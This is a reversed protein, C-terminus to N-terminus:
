ALRLSGQFRGGLLIQGDAQVAVSRVTNNVDLNFGVDLTGNAAVRAIRSRTTGAVTTFQGGLLIQGDAQVAVSLVDSNVNPNFSADLTGNANLRAINSRAQGLVSSFRGAIITKGDPQVATSLVFGGVISLDLPDLDGPAAHASPLSIAFSVLIAIVRLWIQKVQFARVMVPLQASPRAAKM